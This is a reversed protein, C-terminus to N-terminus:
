PILGDKRLRAAIKPTIEGMILDASEHSKATSELTYVLSAGRTEYLRTTLVLAREQTFISPTAEFEAYVIPMGYAGYVGVPGGGSKEYQGGGRTDRSGGETVTINASVLQSALVGDAAQSTLAQEISARSLPVEKAMVTCSVVAKVKDSRLSKAMAWEFNCRQSRNPTVGVILLRKFTQPRTAGENWEGKVSFASACAALGAIALLLPALARSYPSLQRSTGSNRMLLM